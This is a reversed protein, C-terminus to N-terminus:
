GPQWYDMDLHVRCTSEDSAVRLAVSQFKASVAETLNIVGPWRPLSSDTKNLAKGAYSDLPIEMVGEFRQLRHATRLYSNYLADRLFLNLCKRAM